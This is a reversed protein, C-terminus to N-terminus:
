RPSVGCGYRDLIAIGNALGKLAYTRLLTGDLNFSHLKKPSWDTVLITEPNLLSVSCPGTLEGPSSITRLISGDMSIITVNGAMENCVAFNGFTDIVAIGNPGRICEGSVQHVITGVDGVLQVILVINASRDAVALCENPLVAVGNPQQLPTGELVTTHGSPLFEVGGDSKFAYRLCLIRPPSKDCLFIRGDDTAVLSLPGGLQPGDVKSPDRILPDPYTCRLVAGETDFVADHVDISTLLTDYPCLIAEEHLLYLVARIHAPRRRHYPEM